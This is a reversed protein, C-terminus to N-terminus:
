ELWESVLPDLINWEFMPNTYVGIFFKEILYTFKLWGIVQHGFKILVRTFVFPIIDVTQKSSSPVDESTVVSFLYYWVLFTGLMSKEFNM